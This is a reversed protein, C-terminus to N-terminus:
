PAVAGLTALDASVAELFDVIRPGWRSAIDADIGFVAGTRVAALDSWGPRAAVTELSEADALFVVDPDAELLFEASVQPYGTGDPDASDAINELGLLSYVEGIFTSSTATYLNPDLEHFYTLPDLRDPLSAVVADVRAELEGTVAVAEALHGTAAGIQEIQAWVDDVTAAAPLLLVPIGLGGLSAVIGDTDNSVIVLDPDYNTIAEVNPTFGSLDTVPAEDPYYSYEDVAVVQEGAGVAFLMETATPSLSVIAQPREDLTVDGNAAAVTVPFATGTAGITTTTGDDSGPAPTTASSSCAALITLVVVAGGIPRMRM